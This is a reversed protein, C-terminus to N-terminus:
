EILSRFYERIAFASPHLKSKDQLVLKKYKFAFWEKFDRIVGEMSIHCCYIDTKVDEIYYHGNFAQYIEIEYPEKFKLSVGYENIESVYRKM